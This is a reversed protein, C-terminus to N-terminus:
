CPSREHWFHFESVELEVKELLLPVFGSDFLLLIQASMDKGESFLTILLALKANCDSVLVFYDRSFDRPFSDDDTFVFAVLQVAIGAVIDFGDRRVVAVGFDVKLGARSVVPVFL